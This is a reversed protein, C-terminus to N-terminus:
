RDKKFLSKLMNAAREYRHAADKAAVNKEPDRETCILGFIEKHESIM